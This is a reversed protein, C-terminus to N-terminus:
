LINKLMAFKDRALEEDDTGVWYIVKREGNKGKSLQSLVAKTTEDIIELTDADLSDEPTDPAVQNKAFHRAAEEQEKISQEKGTSKFSMPHVDILGVLKILYEGYDGLTYTQYKHEISKKHENM